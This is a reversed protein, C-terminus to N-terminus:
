FRVVHFFIKWFMALIIVSISVVIFWKESFKGFSCSCLLPEPFAADCSVVLKKAWKYISQIFHSLFFQLLTYQQYSVVQFNKKELCFTVVNTFLPMFLTAILPLPLSPPTLISLSKNPLINYKASYLFISM